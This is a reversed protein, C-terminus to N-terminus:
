FRKLLIFTSKGLDNRFGEVGHLFLLILCLCSVEGVLAWGGRQTNPLM